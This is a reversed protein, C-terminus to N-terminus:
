RLAAPLDAGEPAPEAARIEGGTIWDADLIFLRPDLPRWRGAVLRRVEYRVRPSSVRGTTGVRGIPDGRRVKQGRRVQTKGLHAYLTRVDPGHELVVVHGLPRWAAGASSPVAGAFRVTGGGTAVVPLDAPAALSLGPFFEEDSTLPSVRRGWRAVPVAASPEVPSRSPFTAVDRGAVADADALRRRAAEAVRLRRGLASVADEIDEPSHPRAAPDPDAPPLDDPRPLDCVVLLRALFAEDTALRTAVKEGRRTVSTFAEGGLRRTERLAIRDASRALDNMLEPAAVLGLVVAAGAAVLTTAFAAGARPSVSYARLPARPDNSLLRLETM